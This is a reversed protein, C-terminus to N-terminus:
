MTIVRYNGTLKLLPQPKRRVKAPLFQAHRKHFLERILAATTTGLAPSAGGAQAPMENVQPSGTAVRVKTMRLELSRYEVSPMSKSPTM